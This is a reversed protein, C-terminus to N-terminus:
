IFGLPELLFCVEINRGRDDYYGGLLEPLGLERQQRPLNGLDRADACFKFVNSFVLLLIHSLLPSTFMSYCRAHHSSLSNESSPRYQPELHRYSMSLGDSINVNTVM